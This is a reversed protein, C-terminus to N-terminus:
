YKSRVIGTGSDSEATFPVRLPYFYPKVKETSYTFWTGPYEKMKRTCYIAAGRVAANLNSAKIIKDFTIKPNISFICSPDNVSIEVLWLQPRLSYKKIKAM